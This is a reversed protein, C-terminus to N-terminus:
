NPESHSLFLMKLMQEPTFSVPEDFNILGNSVLVKNIQDLKNEISHLYDMGHRKLLWELAVTFSPDLRAYKPNAKKFLHIAEETLQDNRSDIDRWSDPDPIMLNALDLLTQKNGNDSLNKALIELFLHKNTQTTM